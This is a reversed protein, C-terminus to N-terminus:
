GSRKRVLQWLARVIILTAGALAVRGTGPFVSPLCFLLGVLGVMSEDIIKSAPDHRKLGRVVVVMGLALLAVIVITAGTQNM